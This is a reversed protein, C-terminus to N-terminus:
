RPDRARAKLTDSAEIAAMFKPSGELFRIYPRQEAVACHAFLRLGEIPSIGEGLDTLATRLDSRGEADLGFFIDEKRAFHNFVTMRGVDAVQAIDDVTM